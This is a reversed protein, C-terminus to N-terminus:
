DKKNNSVIYKKKKKIKDSGNKERHIILLEINKNIMIM